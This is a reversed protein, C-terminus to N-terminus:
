GNVHLHVTDSQRSVLKNKDIGSAIKASKLDDSIEALRVYILLNSRIFLFCINLHSCQFMKFLSLEYIKFGFCLHKYQLASM